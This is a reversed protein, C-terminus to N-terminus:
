DKSFCFLVASSVVWCKDLRESKMWSILLLSEQLEVLIYIICRHGLCKLLLQLWTLRMSGSKHSLKQDRKILMFLTEGVNLITVCTQFVETAWWWNLKNPGTAILILCYPILLKWGVLPACSGGTRFARADPYDTCYSLLRIIHCALWSSFNWTM